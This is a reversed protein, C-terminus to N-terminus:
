LFETSSIVGVDDAAFNYLVSSAASKATQQIHNNAKSQAIFM